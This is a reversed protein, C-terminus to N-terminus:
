IAAAALEAIAALAADIEELTTAWGVSLRVLGGGAHTGLARHVLPACHLGARAQVGASADLLTAFEQPDYGAVAFSVVGLRAGGLPPGYVTVGDIEGLGGLLRDTLAAEHDAIAAVGRQSLFRTAVAVGALAAVNHTGVEFRTPSATPAMPADSDSGTGGFRIPQLQEVVDKGLVLLGTGAPGLLGKHGSAALLDVGLTAFDIPVHGLSQAADVLTIAGAHRAAAVLEDVPQVAGTVNSCHTFAALRLPAEQCARFFRDVDIVGHADCGIRVVDLALRQELAAIPRLVSNHEVVTTIVRDGRRLVGAIALNLVDTANAGLVIQRADAVGLLRGCGVRAEDVVRVAESAERYAGRGASAGVHRQYRDVADYVADPKPWSTAANDLYIRM